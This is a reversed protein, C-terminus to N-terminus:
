DKTDAMVGEGDGLRDRMGNGRLRTPDDISGPLTRSVAGIRGDPRCVVQNKVTHQRKKGSDFPKQAGLGAPRSVTAGRRRHPDGGAPLRRHGGREDGAEDPLPDASRPDAPRRPTGRKTRGSAGRLRDRAATFDSALRDVEERTVGTLVPFATPAQCLAHYTLM